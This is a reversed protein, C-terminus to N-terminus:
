VRTTFRGILSVGYFALFFGGCSNRRVELLLIGLCFVLLLDRV